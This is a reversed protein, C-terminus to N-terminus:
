ALLAPRIWGGEELAAAAATAAADREGARRGAVRDAIVHRAPYRPVRATRAESFAASINDAAARM